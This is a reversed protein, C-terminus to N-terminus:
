ITLVIKTAKVQDFNFPIDKKEKGAGKIKVETELDFGGGTVNKLIGTYKEGENDVVAVKKGENKYYQEIVTFPSDLGPSSVLLEFDESDRDLAKEIHRHLLACEDITIGERTDVLVTIRNSASVKVSVIFMSTGSIHERILEEIRNKDTM